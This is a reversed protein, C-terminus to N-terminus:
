AQFSDNIRFLYEMHDMFYFRSTSFISHVVNDSWRGNWFLPSFRGHPPKLRLAMANGLIVMEEESFLGFYADMPLEFRRTVWENSRGDFKLVDKYTHDGKKCREHDELLPGIFDMLSSPGVWNIKIPVRNEKGDFSFTKNMLKDRLVVVCEDDLSRRPSPVITYSPSAEPHLTVFFFSEKAVDFALVSRNWDGNIYIVGDVCCTNTSAKFADPLPGTVDRFFHDVGLTMIKCRPEVRRPPVCIKYISLVKFQNTYSDFGLYNKAHPVEQRLTLVDRTTPNWIINGVCILDNVMHPGFKRDEPRMRTPLTQIHTLRNPATTEDLYSYTCRGDDLYTSVLQKPGGLRSVWHKRYAHIFRPDDVTSKWLKSVCRFRLVSKAPLDKLIKHILHDPLYVGEEM